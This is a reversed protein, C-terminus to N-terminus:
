DKGSRGWRPVLILGIGIVAGVLWPSWTKHKAHVEGNMAEPAAPDQVQELGHKSADAFERLEASASAHLDDVLAMALDHWARELKSTAGADPTLPM